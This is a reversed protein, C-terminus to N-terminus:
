NQDRFLWSHWEQEDTLPFEVVDDDDADDDHDESGVVAVDAGDVGNVMDRFSGLLDLVVEMCGLKDKQVLTHEKDQLVEELPVVLDLQNSSHRQEHQQQHDSEVRQAEVDHVDDEQHEHNGMGQSDVVDDSFLKNNISLTLKLMSSCVSWM